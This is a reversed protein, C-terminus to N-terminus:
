FEGMAKTTNELFYKFATYRKTKKNNEIMAKIDAGKGVIILMKKARTVATYLLNRYKLQPPIDCVPLIVCDFESGQSKHITTAYALVIEDLDAAEYRVPRGDFLVVLSRSSSDVAKVFGIDGNYVDKDYNNRLQMVRDGVRFIAAGRVVSDGVPNLAKQLEINLNDAGLVNKRMPVLVQVDQMPDMGFKRPIRTTM